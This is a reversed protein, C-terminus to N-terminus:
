GVPRLAGIREAVGDGRAMQRQAQAHLAVFAIADSAAEIAAAFVFGAQCFIEEVSICIGRAAIEEVDAGVDAIEGAQEAFEGAGGSFDNGDFGLRLVALEEFGIEAVVAEALTM